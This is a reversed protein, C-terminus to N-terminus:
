TKCKLWAYVQSNVTNDYSSITNESCAEGVSQQMCTDCTHSAPLADKAECDILLQLYGNVSENSHAFRSASSVGSSQTDKILVSSSPSAEESEPLQAVDHDTKLSVYNNDRGVNSSDDTEDKVLNTYNSSM